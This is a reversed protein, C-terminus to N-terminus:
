LFHQTKNKDTTKDDDPEADTQMRETAVIATDGKEGFVAIVIM